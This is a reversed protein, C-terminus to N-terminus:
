KYPIFHMEINTINSYTFSINMDKNVPMLASTASNNFGHYSM